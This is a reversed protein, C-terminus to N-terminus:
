AVEAVGNLASEYDDATSPYPMESKKKRMEEETM